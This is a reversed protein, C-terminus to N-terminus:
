CKTQCLEDAETELRQNLTEEVASRVVEDIHGRVADGDIKITPQIEQKFSNGQESSM